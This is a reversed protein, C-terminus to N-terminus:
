KGVLVVYIFVGVLAPIIAKRRGMFVALGQLISGAFLTINMGSAVVVHLTGTTKLGEFFQPDLSTKTGLVIGSLLAGHPEPLLDRLAAQLLDVEGCLDYVLRHPKDAWEYGLSGFEGEGSCANRYDDTTTGDRMRTTM